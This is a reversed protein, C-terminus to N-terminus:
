FAADCAVSVADAGLHIALVPGIKQLSISATPFREELVHYLNSALRSAGIYDIVFEQAEPANEDPLVMQTLSTLIGTDGRATSDSVVIGEQLTLIPKINLVTSVGMRVRGIRGSKRLPTLDDVTFAMRIRNRYAKVRATIEDLGRGEQVWHAAQKLLLFLGGAIFRSDIVTVQGPLSEAAACASSYAGSLKQSSTLCLVESGAAIEKEFCSLFLAPNPHSTSLADRDALLAEFDGNQDSCSEYYFHDGVRYSMPVIRLDLLRRDEEKICV